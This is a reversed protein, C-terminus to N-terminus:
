FNSLLNKLVNGTDAFNQTLQLDVEWSIGTEFKIQLDGTVIGLDSYPFYPCQNWARDQGTWLNGARRTTRGM